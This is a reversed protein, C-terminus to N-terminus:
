DTTNFILFHDSILTFTGPLMGFYPNGPVKNPCSLVPTAIQAVGQGNSEHHYRM